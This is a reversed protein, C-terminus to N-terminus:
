LIAGINRESIGQSMLMRYINDDSITSSEDWLESTYDYLEDIQGPDLVFTVDAWSSDTFNRGGAIGKAKKGVCNNDYFFLSCKLHLDNSMRWDIGSFHQVHFSLRILNKIYQQECDNCKKNYKCSKYNAVGILFRVNDLLQLEDIIGRTETRYNEGWESTDRGDYTIGCYVGFSSIITHKPKKAVCNMIFDNHESTPILM